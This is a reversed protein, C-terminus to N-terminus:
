PMIELRATAQYLRDASNADGRVAAFVPPEIFRFTTTPAGATTDPAVPDTWDFSLAGEGLDTQWFSEFTNLEAGTFVLLLSVEKAAATYRKRQNVPGTDNPTRLRVDRRAYSLPLFQEQPLGGPWTPM